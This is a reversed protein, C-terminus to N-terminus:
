FAGFHQQTVSYDVREMKVAMKWTSSPHAFSWDCIVVLLGVGLKGKRDGL